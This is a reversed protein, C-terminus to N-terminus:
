EFLTKKLGKLRRAKRIAVENVLIQESFIEAKTNLVYNINEDFCKQDQFQVCYVRAYMYPVLLLKKNTVALALAFSTKAKKPDGGTMESRSGYYVGEMLYAGGFYYDPKLEKVRNLLILVKSLQAFGEENERDLNLEAAWGFAFWFIAPVRDEGLEKVRKKLEPEEMDYLEQRQQINIEPFLVRSAYKQARRYLNRARKKQYGAIKEFENQRKINFKIESLSSTKALDLMTARYEYEEMKDEVFGLSYTAFGEALFLNIDENDPDNISISELLKLNSALASEALELDNETEFAVRGNELVPVAQRIGARRVWSCGLTVAVCLIAIYKVQKNM